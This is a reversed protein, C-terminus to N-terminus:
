DFMRATIHGADLESPLGAVHERLDGVAGAGLQDWTERKAFRSVHEREPRVIFNDLNMAAVEGHLVDVLGGQVDHGDYQADEGDAIGLQKERLLTLLDVRQKFLRKGLPEALKGEAGKPHENFYEFNGCFDFIHFETKDQGPGFLDPCLRTGRGIMQLFKVKSRVAKFFVLNLVEPVDIGTDLMDVSIAIQLRKAPQSFDDILSQAYKVSHTIVRAFEGRLHPYHHDFRRAIFEAHQQNVAFIITKGLLDGGDVKLG